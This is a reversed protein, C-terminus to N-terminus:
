GRFLQPVKALLQWFGYTFPAIVWLWALAIAFRSVPQDTVRDPAAPATANRDTM